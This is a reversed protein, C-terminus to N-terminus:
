AFGNEKLYDLTVNSGTLSQKVTHGLMQHVYKALMDFEINVKDGASKSSLITSEATHPILSVTILQNNIEFITLSTGDVTISGKDMTFMSGSPPVEMQIYMANERKEKRIINGTGDVHGSVFHGGFRGNAVMARELNVRHGTTLTALSTTYFTEPMVDVTFKQNTFSTVTLCVGNVAISDGERVDGLIKKAQIILKM